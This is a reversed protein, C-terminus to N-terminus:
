WRFREDSAQLGARTSPRAPETRESVRLPVLQEAVGVGQTEPYYYWCATTDLTFLVRRFSVSTKSSYLLFFAVGIGGGTRYRFMIPRLKGRSM